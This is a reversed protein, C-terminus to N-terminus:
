EPTKNLKMELKIQLDKLEEKAIEIALERKKINLEILKPNINPFRTDKAVGTMNVKYYDLDLEAEKVSMELGMIGRRINFLEDNMLNKQYDM